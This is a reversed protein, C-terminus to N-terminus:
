SKRVSGTFSPPACNAPLLSSTNPRASTNLPRQDGQQPHRQEALAHPRQHLRGHARLQHADVGFRSCGSINPM